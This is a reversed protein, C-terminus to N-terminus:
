PCPLIPSVLPWNFPELGRRLMQRLVNLFYKYCNGWAAGFDPVSDAGSQCPFDGLCLMVETVIENLAM